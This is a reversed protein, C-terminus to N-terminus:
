LRAFYFVYGHCWLSIFVTNFLLLYIFVFLHSLFSFDDKSFFELYYGCVCEKEGWSTSSSERGQTHVPSLSEGGFLLMHFSFGTSRCHSVQLVSGYGLPYTKNSEHVRLYLTLPLVKMDITKKGHVWLRCRIMLFCWVFQIPSCEVFYKVLMRSFQWPWPFDPFASFSSFQPSM